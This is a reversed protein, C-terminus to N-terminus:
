RKNTVSTRLSYLDLGPRRAIIQIRRQEDTLSTALARRPKYTVIYHASLDRMVTAALTRAEDPSSLPLLRGGMADALTALRADNDRLAAGYRKKWRRMERDLNIQGTRRNFLKSEGAGVSQTLGAYSFVHFSAQRAALRRLVDPALPRSLVQERTQLEVGDSFVLVHTNSAPKDQLVKEALALCENLRSRAAPLLKYKVARLLTAKDHSWDQILEVRNANQIIAVAAVADEAGLSNIIEASMERTLAHTQAATMQSSLDFILLLYAPERNISTITQPRGDELVSLDNVTLDPAFNGRVDYAVVPLRVEETSIKIADQEDQTQNTSPQNVPSPERTQACIFFSAGAILAFAAFLKISFPYRM